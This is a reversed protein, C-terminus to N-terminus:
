VINAIDHKVTRLLHQANRICLNYEYNANIGYLTARAPRLALYSRRNIGLNMGLEKYENTYLDKSGSVAKYPLTM